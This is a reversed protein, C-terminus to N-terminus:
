NDKTLNSYQEQMQSMPQQTGRTSDYTTTQMQQQPM